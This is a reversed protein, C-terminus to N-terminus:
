QAARIDRYCELAARIQQVLAAARSSDAASPPRPRTPPMHPDPAMPGSMAENAAESTHHDASDMASMDMPAGGQPEQARCAVAGCLAVLVFPALPPHKPMDALRVVVM